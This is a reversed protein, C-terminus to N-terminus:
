MDGTANLIKNPASRVIDIINPLSCGVSVLYKEIRAVVEQMTQQDPLIGFQDSLFLHPPLAQVM